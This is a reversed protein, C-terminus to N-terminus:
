KYNIKDIVVTMKWVKMKKMKMMKFDWIINRFKMKKRIMRKSSNSNSSM